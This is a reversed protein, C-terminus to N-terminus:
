FSTQEVGPALQFRDMFDALKPYSKVALLERAEAWYLFSFLSMSAYNWDNSKAPDLSSAWPTVYELNKPIRQRHRSLFFGSGNIDFGDKRMLFLIVGTDLCSYISSVINEEDISLERLHHKRILYNVIVRSDFITQGEDILVPVKNIPTEKALIEADKQNEVFDLLRFDFDIQNQIMLIRCIRVFPSRKSGILRYAM